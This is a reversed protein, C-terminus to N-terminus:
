EDLSKKLYNEINIKGLDLVHLDQIGFPIPTGCGYYKDQIENPVKQLAQLIIGPPATLTCCASTKLDSTSNLVKGYYNKVSEYVIEADEYVSGVVSSSSSMTKSFIRSTKSSLRM